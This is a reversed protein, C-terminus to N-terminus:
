PTFYAEGFPLLYRLRTTGRVGQGSYKQFEEEQWVSRVRDRIWSQSDAQSCIKEQNCALGHAIADFGSILFGGGHEHGNWKKFANGALASELLDFSRHFGEEEQKRSESTMDRALQLAAHDLYENVDRGPSYPSRRYAVYRLVIEMDRQEQRAAESLVVTTQFSPYETLTKLWDHFAQNAMVLVCNRVEQASLHSGGTNLRQFLEFKAEEDSEKKLIEVRIRSRRLDLRHASPLSTWKVGALSPVLNTGAISSAESPEGSNDKLVGVFELVTSLRQLGDILEWTGEPQQFVFIPPTPIGLLLSEIFRTKQSHNWRFYRQYIPNIILEDDRYLSILEGLSMDYGDSVVRRRAADIEATLHTM